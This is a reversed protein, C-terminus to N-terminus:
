PKNAGEKLCQQYLKDVKNAHSGGVGSGNYCGFAAKYDGTKGFCYALYEAGANLNTNPDLLEELSYYKNGIKRSPTNSDGWGDYRHSPFITVQTLGIGHSGKKWDLGYTKKNSLDVVDGPGGKHGDHGINKENGSSEAQVTAQLACPEINHAKAAQDIQSAWKGTAGPGTPQQGPRQSPRGTNAPTSQAVIPTECEISGFPDGTFGFVRLASEIIVFSLVVIVFGIIAFTITKKAGEIQESSGASSIYRFAGVILFLVTAAGLLGIAVEFVSNILAILDCLDCSVFETSVGTADCTLLQAALASYPLMGM